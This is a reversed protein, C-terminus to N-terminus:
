SPVRRQALILAVTVACLAANGINLLVARALGQGNQECLWAAM